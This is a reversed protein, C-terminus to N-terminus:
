RLARLFATVLEPRLLTDLVIFLLPLLVSGVLRAAISFDLPYLRLSEYDRYEQRIRQLKQETATDAGDTSAGVDPEGANRKIARYQERIRNLADSRVREARRSVAYTPYLFSAAIFVAYLGGMLYILGTTTPGTAAAYQLQLPLLLAGTSFLVTTQITFSGVVSMGGLGDPHFPDVRLRNVAVSRVVSLTVLVFLFGIGVVVGIWLLVAAVLLFLPDGVGFLGHARVWEEGGALLFPIPLSALLSAVWWRESYLRGYRDAVADLAGDDVLLDACEDFFRPFIRRDYYWVLYPAVWLLVVLSFLSSVYGRSLYPSRLLVYAAVIATPPLAFVLVAARFPGGVSDSVRDVVDSVWLSHSASGTSDHGVTRM